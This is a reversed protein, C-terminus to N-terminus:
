LDSLWDSLKCRDGNYLEVYPEGITVSDIGTVTVEGPIIKVNVEKAIREILEATDVRLSELTGKEKLRGVYKKNIEACGKDFERFIRERTEAMEAVM